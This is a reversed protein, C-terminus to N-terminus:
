FTTSLKWIGRCVFLRSRRCSIAHEASNKKEHRTTHIQHKPLTAMLFTNLSNQFQNNNGAANWICTCKCVHMHVQIYHADIYMSACQTYITCRFPLFWITCSSRFRVVVHYLTNPNPHLGRYIYKLGVCVHFICAQNWLIAGGFAGMPISRKFASAVPRRKPLDNCRYICNWIYMYISYIYTYIYTHEQESKNLVLYAHTQTLTHRRKLLDNSRYIYTRVWCVSSSYKRIHIHTHTATTAFQQM